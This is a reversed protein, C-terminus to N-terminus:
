NIENRNKIESNESLLTGNMDYERTVVLVKEEGPLEIYRRTVRVEEERIGSPTELTIDNAKEEVPVETNVPEDVVKLSDPYENIVPSTFEGAEANEYMDPLPSEEGPVDSINRDRSEDSPSNVTEDNRYPVDAYLPETVTTDIFRVNEEPVTNESDSVVTNVETDVDETRKYGSDTVIIRDRTKVDDDSSLPNIVIPEYPTVSTEEETRITRKMKRVPRENSDYGYDEPKKVREEKVETTEKIGEDPIITKKRIIKKETVESTVPEEEVVVEEEEYEIPAREAASINVISWLALIMGVLSLGSGIISRLDTNVNGIDGFDFRVLKGLIGLFYLLAVFCALFIAWFLGTGVTDLNSLAHRKVLLSILLWFPIIFALAGLVMSVQAENILLGGINIPRAMPLIYELSNDMADMILKYLTFGGWASLALAIASFITVKTNASELHRTRKMETNM